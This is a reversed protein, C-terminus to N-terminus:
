ALREDEARFLCPEVIDANRAGIGAGIQGFPQLVPEAESAM